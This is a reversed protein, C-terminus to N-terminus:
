GTKVFGDTGAYMSPGKWGHSKAMELCQSGCANLLEPGPADNGWPYTRRDTGRAAYEWEEETPLRKGAWKCYASAQLVPELDERRRALARGAQRDDGTPVSSCGRM